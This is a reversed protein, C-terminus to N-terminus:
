FRSFVLLVSVQHVWALMDSVYRVPDHATMEMPRSAGQSTETLRSKFADISHVYM